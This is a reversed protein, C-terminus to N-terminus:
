PSLVSTAVRGLKLRTGTADDPVRNMGQAGSLASQGPDKGILAVQGERVAQNLSETFRLCM